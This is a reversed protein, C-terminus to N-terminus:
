TLNGSPIAVMPQCVGHSERFRRGVLSLAAQARYPTVVGIEGLSVGLAVLWTVYAKVVAAQSPVAVGPALNACHIKAKKGVLYGVSKLNRNGLHLHSKTDRNFTAM